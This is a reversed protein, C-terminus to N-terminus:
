DKHEMAEFLEDVSKGEQALRKLLEDLKAKEVKRAESREARVKRAKALAEKRKQTREEPTLKVAAKESATKAKEMALTLKEKRAMAKQLAEESKALTEKRENLKEETKAILASREANLKSLREIQENVAALREEQTPYPKRAKKETEQVPAMKKKGSGKVGRPM